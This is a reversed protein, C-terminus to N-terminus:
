RDYVSDIYGSKDLEAIFSADYFDQPKRQKLERYTYLALVQEIGSVSPYTDRRCIRMRATAPRM